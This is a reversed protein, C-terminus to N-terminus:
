TKRFGHTTRYGYSRRWLNTKYYKITIIVNSANYTKRIIIIFINHVWTIRVWSKDQVWLNKSGTCQGQGMLEGSDMLQRSGMLQGSGTLQGSCMLQGSSTLQETGTLQGSGMLQGHVTLQGSGM